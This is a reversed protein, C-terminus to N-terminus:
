DGPTARQFCIFPIEFYFFACELPLFVVLRTDKKRYIAYANRMRPVLHRQTLLKILFLASKHCCDLHRSLLGRKIASPFLSISLVTSQSHVGLFHCFTGLIRQYFCLTTAPDPFSLAPVVAHVRDSLLMFHLSRTSCTSSQEVISSDDVSAALPNFPLGNWHTADPISIQHSHLNFFLIHDQM